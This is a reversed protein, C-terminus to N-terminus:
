ARGSAARRRASLTMKASRRRRAALRAPVDRRAADAAELLQPIAAVYRGHM